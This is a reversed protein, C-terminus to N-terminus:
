SHLRQRRYGGASRSKARACRHAVLRMFRSRLRREPEHSYEFANHVPEVM